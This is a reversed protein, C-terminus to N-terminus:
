LNSFYDWFSIILIDQDEELQNEEFIATSQDYTILIKKDCNIKLKKLRNIERSKNQYRNIIITSYKIKDL